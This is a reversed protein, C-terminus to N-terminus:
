STSVEWFTVYRCFVELVSFIRYFAVSDLFSLSCDIMEPMETICSLGRSQAKVCLLMSRRPRLWLWIEHEEAENFLDYRVNCRAPQMVVHGFRTCAIIQLLQNIAASASQCRSTDILLKAASAPQSRFRLIECLDVVKRSDHLAFCPVKVQTKLNYRPM